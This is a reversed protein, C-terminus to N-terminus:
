FKNYYNVVVTKKGNKKNQKKKMKYFLNFILVM